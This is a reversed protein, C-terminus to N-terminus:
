DHVKVDCKTLTSSEEPYQLFKAKTKSKWKIIVTTNHQPMSLIDKPTDNIYCHVDNYNQFNNKHYAM